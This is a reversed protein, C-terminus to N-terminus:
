TRENENTSGVFFIENPEEIELCTCIRQVESLRFEKRNRVKLSMAPISIGIAEALQRQTMGKEALRARLLNAQIM